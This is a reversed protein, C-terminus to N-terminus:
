KTPAPVFSMQEMEWFARLSLIQGLENVRYIVVGPVVAQSGDDFTTTITVVNAVEDAGAFSAEIRMAISNPAIVNDWFAAIAAAGRHGDGVEDFASPGVPDQVLADEAFLALWGARDKNAVAARSRLSAARASLDGEAATTSDDIMTM